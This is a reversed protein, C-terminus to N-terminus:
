ELETGIVNRWNDGHKAKVAETHAEQSDGAVKDAACSYCYPYGYSTGVYHEVSPDNPCEQWEGDLRFMM